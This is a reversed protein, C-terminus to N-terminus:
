DVEGCRSLVEELMERLPARLHECPTGELYAIADVLEEACEHLREPVSLRETLPAGFRKWGQEARSAIREDARKRGAKRCVGLHTWHPQTSCTCLYETM